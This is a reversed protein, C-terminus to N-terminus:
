GVNSKEEIQRGECSKKYCSRTLRRNKLKKDGEGERKGGNKREKEGIRGKTNSFSGYVNM